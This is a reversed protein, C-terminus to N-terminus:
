IGDPHVPLYWCRRAQRGSHCQTTEAKKECFIANEQRRGVQHLVVVVLFLTFRSAARRDVVVYYLRREVRGDPSLTPSTKIPNAPAPYCLTLTRREGTALDRLLVQSYMTVVDPSVQRAPVVLACDLTDETLPTQEFPTKDVKNRRLLHTLRVHDLETLTREHNLVKM